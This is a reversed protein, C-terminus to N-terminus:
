RLAIIQGAFLMSLRPIYNWEELDAGPGWSTDEVVRVVGSTESWMMCFWRRKQQIWKMGTIGPCSGHEASSGVNALLEEGREQRQSAWLVGPGDYNLCGSTDEAPSFRQRCVCLGCCFTAPTNQIYIYISIYM